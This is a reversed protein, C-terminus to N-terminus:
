NFYFLEKDRDDFCDYKQENMKCTVGVEKDSLVGDILINSKEFGGCYARKVEEGRVVEIHCNRAGDIYMEFTREKFEFSVSFHSFELSSRIDEHIKTDITGKVRKYTTMATKPRKFMDKAKELNNISESVRSKLSGIQNGLAYPYNDEFDRLANHYYRMQNLENLLERRGEIVEETVFTDSIEMGLDELYTDITPEGIQVFRNQFLDEEGPKSLLQENFANTGYEIMAEIVPNCKEIDEITCESLKSSLVQSLLIPNGGMQYGTISISGDMGEDKMERKIEGSVNGFSGFEGGLKAKFKSKAERTKFKISISFILGAGEEYSSILADGCVLRFTDKKRNYLNVGAGALMTDPDYSYEFEVTQSIKQYYNISYSYAQEKLSNFYNAEADGNFSKAGGDFSGSM